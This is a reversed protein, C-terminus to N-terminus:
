KLASFTTDFKLTAVFREDCLSKGTPSLCGGATVGEGDTDFYRLDLTAAKYAFAVGVNWTTYDGAGGEFTQYGVEGSIATTIGYPLMVPLTVTANGTYYVAWTGANNFNDGGVISGGITLWDNIKYSPKAYFEGFDDYFFTGPATLRGGPYAYYVYGLDLGLNGFTFRAGGSLDFEANAIYTTLSSGWVGAYLTVMDNVTYRGEFYGQVAPQNDSQSIGRLVYDSTFAAGFAIDWPSPAAAPAKMAKVPMDAALAPVASVALAAVVSLVVKKM